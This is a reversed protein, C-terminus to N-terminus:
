CGNIRDEFVSPHQDEDEDDEEVLHNEADERAGDDHGFVLDADDVLLPHQHAFVAGQGVAGDDGEVALGAQLGVGEGRANVKAQPCPLEGDGFNGEGGDVLAMDPNDLRAVTMREGAAADQGAGDLAGGVLVRAAEEGAAALAARLDGDDRGAGVADVRAQELYGQGVHEFNGVVHDAHDGGLVALRQGGTFNGALFNGAVVHVLIGLGKDGIAAVLPKLLLHNKGATVEDIGTERGDFGSGHRINGNGIHAHHNGIHAILASSGPLYGTLVNV